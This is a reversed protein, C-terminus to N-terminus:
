SNFSCKYGPNSFTMQRQLSRVGLNDEAQLESGAAAGLRFNKPLTRCHATNTNTSEEISTLQLYQEGAGSCLLESMREGLVTFTPRSDPESRWCAKM